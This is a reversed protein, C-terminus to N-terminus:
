RLDTLQDPVSCWDKTDLDKMQVSEPYGPPAVIGAKFLNDVSSNYDAIISRFTAEYALVPSEVLTPSKEDGEKTGDQVTCANGAAAIAAEYKGIVQEHQAKVNEPAVIDTGAKFWGIGLGIVGFVVALGIFAGMLILATKIGTRM